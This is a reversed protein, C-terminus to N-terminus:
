GDTKVEPLLVVGTGDTGGQDREAEVRAPWDKGQRRSLWFEAARPDGPIHKTQETVKDLVKVREGTDPDKVYKYERKYETVDYGTVRKLYANVVVVKDVYDKNAKLVASLAPERNKYERWTSFAVGCNKAMDEERVGDRAWAAIEDMKPLVHTLYKNQAM